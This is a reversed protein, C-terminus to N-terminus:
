DLLVRARPVEWDLQLGPDSIRARIAFRDGRRTAEGSQDEGSCVHIPPEFFLGLFRGFDGLPMYRQSDRCVDRNSWKAEPCLEVDAGFTLLTRVGIAIWSSEVHRWILPVGLSRSDYKAVLLAFVLSRWRRFGRGGVSHDAAILM